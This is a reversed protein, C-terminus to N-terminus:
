MNLLVLSCNSAPIALPIPMNPYTRMLTYVFSERVKMHMAFSKKDITMLLELVVNSEERINTQNELVLRNYIFVFFPALDPIVASGRLQFITIAISINYSM